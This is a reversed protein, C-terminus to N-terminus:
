NAKDVAKGARAKMRRVMEEELPTVISFKSGEMRAFAANMWALEGLPLNWPEERGCGTMKRYLAVENLVPDMDPLKAGKSAGEDKILVPGSVYDLVYAQFAAVAAALDTRGARWRKRWWALRGRPERYNVVQPFRTQCIAVALELAALTIEGGLMLASQVYELQLKHWASFPELKKGLVVHGRPASVFAEVFREDFVFRGAMAPSGSTGMEM